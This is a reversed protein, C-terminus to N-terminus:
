RLGIPLPEPLFALRLVERAVQSESWEPHDVRIKAKALERAFLSMDFAEMLREEGSMAAEIEMQRKKAAPSTDSLPM